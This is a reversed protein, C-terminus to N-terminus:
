SSHPKDWLPKGTEAPKSKPATKTPARPGRAEKKQLAAKVADNTSVAPSILNEVMSESAADGREREALSAAGRSESVTQRKELSDSKESDSSGAGLQREAEFWIETDRGSPCGYDQWIKRARQAVEEQTPKNNM